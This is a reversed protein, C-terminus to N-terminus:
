PPASVMGAEVRLLRDLVTHAWVFLQRADVPLPISTSACACLDDTSGVGLLGALLVETEGDEGANLLTDLLSASVCSGDENRIRAM